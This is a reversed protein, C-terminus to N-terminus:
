CCIDAIVLHFLCAMAIEAQYCFSALVGPGLCPTLMSVAMSVAM